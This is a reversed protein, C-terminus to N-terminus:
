DDGAAVDGWPPPPAPPHRDATTDDGCSRAGIKHLFAAREDDSAKEWARCLTDVPTDRRRFGAEIAAANASLAGGIVLEALDPRDRKLRALTYDRSTGGQGSRSRNSIDFQFEQSRRDGGNPNTEPAERETLLQVKERMTALSEAVDPLLERRSQLAVIKKIQELTSGVGVPYPAEIFQRFTLPLGDKDKLKEWIRNNVAFAFGELFGSPDAGAQRLDVYIGLRIGEERTKTRSSITRPQRESEMIGETAKWRKDTM